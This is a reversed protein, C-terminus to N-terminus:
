LHLEAWSKNTQTRPHLRTTFGSEGAQRQVTGLPNNETAARQVSQKSKAWRGLKSKQRIDLYGLCPVLLRSVSESRSSSFRNNVDVILFYIPQITESHYQGSLHLTKDPCSSSRCMGTSIIIKARIVNCILGQIGAAIILLHWQQPFITWAVCGFCWM